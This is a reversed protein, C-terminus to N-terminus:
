AEIENKRWLMLALVLVAGVVIWTIMQKQKAEDVMIADSQAEAAEAERRIKMLRDYDAEAAESEKRLQMQADYSQEALEGESRIKMLQENDKAAQDDAHYSGQDVAGFAEALTNYYRERM